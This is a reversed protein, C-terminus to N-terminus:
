EHFHLYKCPITAILCPNTLLINIDPNKKALKHIENEMRRDSISVLVTDEKENWSIQNM